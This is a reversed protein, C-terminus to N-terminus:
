VQRSQVRRVLRFAIAVVTANIVTMTLALAAIEPFSGNQWLDLLVQGVVPNSTKALLASATLEGSMQVFLIVWGAALGPMMLPLMVRRFSRAPSAKFIQSAEILERGVQEVAVAASRMAQPMFIVLYALLLLLWTGSLNLYGSSFALVFGV